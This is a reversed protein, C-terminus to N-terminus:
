YLLSLMLARLQNSLKIQIKFLILWKKFLANDSTLAPVHPKCLELPLSSEIEPHESCWQVSVTYKFHGNIEQADRILIWVFSKFAETINSTRHWLWTKRFFHNVSLSFISLRKIKLFWAREASHFPRLLFIRVKHFATSFTWFILPFFYM